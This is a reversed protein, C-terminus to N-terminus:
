ITGAVSVHIRLLPSIISVPSFQLVLLFLQGHAVKNVSLGVSITRLDFGPMRSSLVAPLRRLRIEANKVRQRRIKKKIKAWGTHLLQIICSGVFTANHFLLCKSPFFRLIHLM